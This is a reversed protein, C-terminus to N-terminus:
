GFRGRLTQIIADSEYLWQVDGKEDTLKLCPVQPKGGGSKLDARHQDDHQANRLEINLSLRKMERRVKICFPCSRFQYLAMSATAADVVQQEEASREVGKPTTITEWLLVFPTLVLRLTRFFYRIIFRM